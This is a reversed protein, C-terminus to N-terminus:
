RGESERALAARATEHQLMGSFVVLVLAIFAAKFGSGPYPHKAFAVAIGLLVPGVVSAPGIFHLRQLPTRMVVIGVCCLIEVLVALVVLATIV